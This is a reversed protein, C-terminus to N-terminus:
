LLGTADTKYANTINQTPITVWCCGYPGMPTNLGGSWNTRGSGSGDAHSRMIAWVSEIGSETECRFNDSIDTALAFEGTADVEKILSIAEEMESTNISVVQHADDQVHAKYILSKALFLQAAGRTPRGEDAQTAPLSAVAQRWENIIWAWGEQDTLERNHHM